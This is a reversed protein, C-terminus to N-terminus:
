LANKQTSVPARLTLRSFIPQAQHGWYSFQNHSKHKWWFYVRMFTILRKRPVLRPNNTRNYARKKTLSKVIVKDFIRVNIERIWHFFRNSIHQYKAYTAVSILPLSPALHPHKKHLATSLHAFHVTRLCM